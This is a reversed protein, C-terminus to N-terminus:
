NERMEKEKIKLLRKEATKVYGQHAKTTRRLDFSKRQQEQKKYLKDNLISELLYDREYEYTICNAIDGGNIRRNPDVQNFIEESTLGHTKQQLSQRLRSLKSSAATM